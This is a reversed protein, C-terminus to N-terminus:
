AARWLDSRIKDPGLTHVIEDIAAGEFTQGVALTWPAATAVTIRSSGPLRDVVADDKGLTLTGGSIGYDGASNDVIIGAISAGGGPIVPSVIPSSAPFAATDAAVPATGGVWNGAASWDDSTIGSWFIMVAGAPGTLCLMGAVAVALVALTSSTRKTM